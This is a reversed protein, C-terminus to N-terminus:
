ASRNRSETKDVMSKGPCAFFPASLRFRPSPLSGAFVTSAEGDNDPKKVITLV